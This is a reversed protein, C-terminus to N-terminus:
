DVVVLDLGRRAICARIVRALRCNAYVRTTPDAGVAQILGRRTEVVRLTQIGRLPLIDRYEGLVERRLAELTVGASVDTIVLSCVGEFWRHRQFLVPRVASPCPSEGLAQTLARWSSDCEDLLVVSTPTSASRAGVFPPEPAVRFQGRDTRAIRSM